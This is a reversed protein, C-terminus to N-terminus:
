LSNLIKKINNCCNIELDHNFNEPNFEEESTDLDSYKIYYITLATEDLLEIFTNKCDIFDYDNQRIKRIIKMYMDFEYDNYPISINYNNWIKEFLRLNSKLDLDM